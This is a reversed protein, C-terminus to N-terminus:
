RSERARAKVLKLIARREEKPLCRFAEIMEAEESAEQAIPKLHGALRLVNERPVGFADAVGKCFHIGPKASGSLVDSITTSSLNARRALESQSWGRETLNEQIWKQLPTPSNIM